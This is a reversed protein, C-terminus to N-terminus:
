DKKNLPTVGDDGKNYDEYKWQSFNYIHYQMGTNDRINSDICDELALPDVSMYGDSKRIILESTRLDYKGGFDPKDYINLCKLAYERDILYMQAGLVNDLGMKYLNKKNPDIGSYVYKSKDWPFYSITCLSFNDPLNSILELCRTKFDNHLLIDDECIIGIPESSELFTRLAKLHSAFCAITSLNNYKSKIGNSFTDWKNIETTNINPNYYSLISSKNSIANIFTVKDLINHSEFRNYMREYRDQRQKLNICYINPLNCYRPKYVYLSIDTNYGLDTFKVLKNKNIFYKTYGLSNFGVCENDNKCIQKLEDISKHKHYQLDGGVYDQGNFVLFDDDPELKNLLKDVHMKFLRTFCNNHTKFYDLNLPLLNTKSAETDWLHVTYSNDYNQNNDDKGLISLDDWLFPYFKINDVINVMWHYKEKLQAPIMVSHGSWWDVIDEGWSKNYINIWEKVMTNNAETMIVANCLHKKSYDREYGMVFRDSLFIDLPKLVIIDTDLYIGGMEYLINLRVYDAKNQFYIVKNNNIVTPEIIKNIILKKKIDNYYISNEPENDCHLYVEYEPNHYIASNIAIYNLLNFDKGRSFWIFHIKKPIIGTAEKNHNKYKELRKKHIYLSINNNHQLKDTDIYFRMLGDNTFGLCNEDELCLQKLEDISKNKEYKYSFYKLTVNNIKIFEDEEAYQHNLKM